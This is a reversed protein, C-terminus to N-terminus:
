LYKRIVGQNNISKLSSVNKNDFLIYEKLDSILDYQSETICNTILKEKIYKLVECVYKKYYTYIEIVNVYFVDFLNETDVLLTSYNDGYKNKYEDNWVTELAIEKGNLNKDSFKFDFKLDLENYESNEIIDSVYKSWVEVIRDILGIDNLGHIIFKEAYDDFMKKTESYKKTILKEYSDLIGEDIFTDISEYKSPNIISKIENNVMIIPMVFDTTDIINNPTKINHFLLAESINKMNFDFQHILDNLRSIINTSFKNLAIANSIHFGNIESVFKNIIPAENIKIETTFHKFLCYKLVSIFSASTLYNFFGEKDFQDNHIESLKIKTDRIEIIVKKEITNVIKNKYYDLLYKSELPTKIFNLFAIEFCDKLPHEEFYNIKFNKIKNWTNSLVPLLYKNQFKECLNYLEKRKKNILDDFIFHQYVRILSFHRTINPLIGIPIKCNVYCNYDVKNQKVSFEPCMSSINTNLKDLSLFEDLQTLLDIDINKM